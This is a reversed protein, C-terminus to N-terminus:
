RVGTTHIGRSDTVFGHDPRPRTGSMWRKGTPTQRARQDVPMVGSVTPYHEGASIAFLLYLWYLPHRLDHHTVGLAVLALFAALLWPRGRARWAVFSHLVIFLLMGPLGTVTGWDILGSHAELKHIPGPMLSTHAGPGWGFLPSREIADIGSRWLAVRVGGQNNQGSYVNNGLTLVSRYVTPGLVALMGFFATPYIVYVFAARGFPLRDRRFERIWWTVPPVVAGAAWAAFMGDSQTAIGLALSGVLLVAYGLRVAARRSVQLGYIALFPAPAMVLAVQNPNTSWGRFRVGGYWTASTPIFDMYTLLWWLLLPVVALALVAPVAARVQESGRPALSLVLTFTAAFSYAVLDHFAGPAEVHQFIAYLWGALMLVFGISWFTLLLRAAESMVAGHRVLMLAVAALLWALLLVEGPGIPVEGFRLQTATTLTVGAALWLTSIRFATPSM